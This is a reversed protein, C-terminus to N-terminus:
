DDDDEDNEEKMKIFDEQTLGLEKIISAILYCLQKKELKGTRIKQAYDKAAKQLQKILASKDETYIIGPIPTKPDHMNGITALEEALLKNYEEEDKAVARILQKLDDIEKRSVIKAVSFNKLVGAKQLVHSYSKDSNNSPKEVSM